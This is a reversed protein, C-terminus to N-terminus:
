SAQQKGDVLQGREPTPMLEARQAEESAQTHIYRDASNPDVWRGTRALGHRDLKGFQHMWSGYTHCFIHFGGQRRPFSLGAATMAERLMGRLASGDHFRFLKADARRELFPLGADQVSRGGGGTIFGKQGRQILLRAQRPPQDYFAQVLCKPLYIGRPVGTKSDPLYLYNRHLKLHRVEARLAEGLREGTYILYFCFLGFEPEIKYAESLVLFAEHPELWSTSRNGRWGKPRKVEKEIGSRHLVAAIPTYVQRNRTAATAKPYLQAALTDIAVQDVDALLKQPWADIVPLLFKGDGGAQMYATAANVFSLPRDVAVTKGLKFEGREAQERWTKLIRRAARPDGTGTSHDLGIGLYKGRIYYFEIKKGNKRIHPPILKWPM